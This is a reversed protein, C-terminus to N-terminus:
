IAFYLSNIEILLNIEIDFCLLIIYILNIMNFVAANHM